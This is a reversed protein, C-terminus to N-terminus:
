MSLFIQFSLFIRWLLFNDPLILFRAHPLLIKKLNLNKFQSLFRTQDTFGQINVPIGFALLIYVFTIDLAYLFGLQAGLSVWTLARGALCLFANCLFDGRMFCYLVIFTVYSFLIVTLTFYFIDWCFPSKKKRKIRVYNVNKWTLSLICCFEPLRELLDRHGVRHFLCQERVNFFLVLIENSCM